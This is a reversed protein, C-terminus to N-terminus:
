RDGGVSCAEGDAGVFTAVPHGHLMRPPQTFVLGSGSTAAHFAALDDVHFGLQCSGAPHEPSAPHLALVTGGTDFETWHPSAFRLALGLVDRHLRVSADMDSVYKIAYRLTTM